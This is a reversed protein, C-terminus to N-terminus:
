LCLKCLRYGGVRGAALDSGTDDDESLFAYFGGYVGRCGCVGPVVSCYGGVALVGEAGDSRRFQYEICGVFSVADTCSLAEYVRVRHDRYGGPLSGGGAALLVVYQIRFGGVEAGERDGDLDGGRRARLHADM